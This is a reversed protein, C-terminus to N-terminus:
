RRRFLKGFEAPEGSHRGLILLRIRHDALSSVRLLNGSTSPGDATLVPSPTLEIVALGAATASQVGIQSDEVAFSMRPDVSLEDCAALYPDPAPKPRAVDEASVAAAFYHTIELRALTRLLVTRPSNSAVGLPCILHLEALLEPVGEILMLEAADISRVLQERLAELVEGLGIPRGSWQVMRRAATMLAAGHLGALQDPRLALGFMRAARSFAEEWCATTDALVGDCDFIVGSAQGSIASNM